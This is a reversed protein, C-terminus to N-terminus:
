LNVSFDIFFLEYVAGLINLFYIRLTIPCLKVPSDALRRACLM